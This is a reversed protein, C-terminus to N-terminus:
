REKQFSRRVFQSIFKTYAIPVESDKFTTQLAQYVRATVLGM